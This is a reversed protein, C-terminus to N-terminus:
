ATLGRRLEPPMCISPLYRILRALLATHDIQRRQIRIYRRTPRASLLLLLLLLSSHGLLAPGAFVLKLM